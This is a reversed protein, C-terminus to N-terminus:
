GTFPRRSCAFYRKKMSFRKLMHADAHSLTEAQPSIRFAQGVGPVSEPIYNGSSLREPFHMGSQLRIRPCVKRKLALGSLKDWESRCNQSVTEASVSLPGSGM